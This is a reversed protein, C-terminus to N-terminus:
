KSTKTALIKAAKLVTVAKKADKDCVKDGCDTDCKKEETTETASAAEGAYAPLSLGLIIALIALYKGM